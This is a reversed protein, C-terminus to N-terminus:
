SIYAKAKEYEPKDNLNLFEDEDNFQVIKTNCKNLLYGVKHIDNNLMEDIISLCSTSFVGCLNHTKETQAVTIDYNSSNDIIKKMTDIKVFPTDVTIIFIRKENNLSEFITKLAVVPSFISGKDLILNANFNFKDTKSSIYVKKFYPNLKEYQYLSLSDYSSLPLLAKDEGMRSSKGGCLIVCPIEFQTISM